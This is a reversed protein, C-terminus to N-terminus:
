KLASALSRAGTPAPWSPLSGTDRPAAMMGHSLPYLHKEQGEAPTAHFGVSDGLAGWEAYVCRM